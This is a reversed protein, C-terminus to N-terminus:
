RNAEMMRVLVDVDVGILRAAASLIAHTTDEQVNFLGRQAKRIHHVSTKYTNALATLTKIHGHHEFIELQQEPTLPGYCMSPTFPDLKLTEKGPQRGPPRATFRQQKALRVNQVNTGYLYALHSNRVDSHHDWIEQKQQVSLPGYALNPTLPELTEPLGKPRACLSKKM